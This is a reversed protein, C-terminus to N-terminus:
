QAFIHGLFLTMEPVIKQLVQRNRDLPLNDESVVNHIEVTRPGFSDYLQITGLVICLGGQNVVSFSVIKKGAESKQNQSICIKVNAAIESANAIMNQGFQAAAGILDNGHPITLSAVEDARRAGEGGLPLSPIPCEYIAGDRLPRSSFLNSTGM